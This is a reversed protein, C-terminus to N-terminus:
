KRNYFSWSEQEDSSTGDSAVPFLDILIFLYLVGNFQPIIKPSMKFEKLIVKGTVEEILFLM